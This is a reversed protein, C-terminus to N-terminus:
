FSVMLKPERGSEKSSYQCTETNGSSIRFTVETKKALTAVRIAQAVDFGYWRNSSVAGFTGIMVGGYFPDGPLYNPATTWTIAAEDWNSDGGTTTFTGASPCDIESFLSLIASRPTAGRMQYLDFRILTDHINRTVPDFEVKLSPENSLVTTPKSASLTSDADALLLVFQGPAPKQRPEEIEYAVSMPALYKIAVFPANVGGSELSSFLCRSNETSAMRISLFSDDSDALSLNDHWELASSIDFEYWRNQRVEKLVGFLVGGDDSPATDWTVEEQGWDSDVTTTFTGGLCDSLAYIRLVASEIDRTSDVMGVDFKLLSDFREGSSDGGADEETGGDVALATNAGFNVDPRLHSVTADSLVPLILESIQDDERVPSPTPSYVGVTSGEPYLMDANAWGLLEVLFDNAPNQHTTTIKPEDTTTSSSIMSNQTISNGAALTPASSLSPSSSPVDSPSGSPVYSPMFSRSPSFSPVNTPSMTPSLTPSRSGIM